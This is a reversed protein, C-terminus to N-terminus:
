RMRTSSRILEQAEKWVQLRKYEPSAGPPGWVGGDQASLEDYAEAAWEPDIRSLAMGLTLGSIFSTYALCRHVSYAQSFAWSLAVCANAKPTASQQESAM